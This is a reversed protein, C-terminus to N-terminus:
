DILLITLVPAANSKYRALRAPIHLLPMGLM